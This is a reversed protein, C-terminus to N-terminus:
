VEVCLSKFLCNEENIKTYESYNIKYDHLIKISKYDKSFRTDGIPNHVGRKLISKDKIDFNFATSDRKSGDWFGHMNTILIFYGKKCNLNKSNVYTELRNIDRVCQHRRIDIASHDRLKYTKSGPVNIVGGAVVYKFEFAISEGEDDCVLLDIHYDIDKEKYVYEPLYQYQPYLKSAEIIFAVQLHRESVFLPYKNNALNNLIKHVDFKM